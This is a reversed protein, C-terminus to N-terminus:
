AATGPDAGEAGPRHPQGVAAGHKGGEAQLNVLFAAKLTSERPM